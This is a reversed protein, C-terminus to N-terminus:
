TLYAQMETTNKQVQVGIVLECHKNNSTNVHANHAYWDCTTNCAFVIEWKWFDTKNAKTIKNRNKNAISLRKFSYFKLDARIIM